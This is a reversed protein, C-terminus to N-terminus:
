FLVGNHGAYSYKNYEAYSKAREFFSRSREHGRKKLIKIKLIIHEFLTLINSIYTQNKESCELFLINRNFRLPGKLTQIFWSRRFIYLIKVSRTKIDRMYAKEFSM